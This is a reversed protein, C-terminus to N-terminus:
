MYKLIRQDKGWENLWTVANIVELFSPHCWFLWDFSCVLIWNKAKSVKYRGWLFLFLEGHTPPICFSFLGLSRVEIVLFGRPWSSSMPPSHFPKDFNCCKFFLSKEPKACCPGPSVHVEWMSSYSENVSPIQLEPFFHSCLDNVLCLAQMYHFCIIKLYGFPTIDPLVILKSIM